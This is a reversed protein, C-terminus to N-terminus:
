SRKINTVMDNEELTFEPLRVLFGRTPIKKVENIHKIHSNIKDYFSALYDAETHLSANIFFKIPIEILFIGHITKSILFLHEENGTDIFTFKDNQVWFKVLSPIKKLLYSNPNRSFLRANNNLNKLYEDWNSRKSGNIIWAIKKYFKNRSVIEEFSISSNQFEITWGNATKVDAFHREGSKDIHFIEQWENPYHNKWNRHWETESEKNITCQLKGKHAWHHMVRTGCKPVMAQNCAPCFGILGKQAEQRKNNVLAYKM